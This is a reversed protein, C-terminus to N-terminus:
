RQWVSLKIEYPGWLDFTGDGMIGFVPETKVILFATNEKSLSEEPTEVQPYLLLNGISVQAFHSQPIGEAMVAQIFIEASDYDGKAHFEGIQQLLTNTGKTIKGEEWLLGGIGAIPDNLNQITATGLFAITDEAIIQTQSTQPVALIVTFFLFMGVALIILSMIADLTFFFGKKNM